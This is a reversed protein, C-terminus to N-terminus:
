KVPQTFEGSKFAINLYQQIFQALFISRVNGLFLANSSLGKQKSWERKKMEIEIAMIQPLIFSCNRMQTRRKMEIKGFRM